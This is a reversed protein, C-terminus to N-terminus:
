KKWISIINQNTITVISEGNSVAKLVVPGALLGYDKVSSSTVENVYKVSYEKPLVFRTVTKFGNCVDLIIYFTGDISGRL